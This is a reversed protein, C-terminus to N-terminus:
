LCQGHASRDPRFSQEDTGYIEVADGPRGAGASHSDDHNGASFGFLFKRGKFRYKAFAFGAMSSVIVCGATSFIAIYASNFYFHLFNTSFVTQLNKWLYDGPLLKLSVLIDESLHTSMIIMIYFPLLTVLSIGIVLIWVLLKSISVRKM